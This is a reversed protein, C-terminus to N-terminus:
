AAEETNLAALIATLLRDERFWRQSPYRPVHITRPPAAPDAREFVEVALFHIPGVDARGATVLRLSPTEFRGGRIPHYRPANM